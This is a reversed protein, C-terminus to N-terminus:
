EIYGPSLAYDRESDRPVLFEPHPVVVRVVAPDAGPTLDVSVPAVGFRRRVEHDLGPPPVATDPAGDADDPAELSGLHDLFDNQRRAMRRPLALEEPDSATNALAARVSVAECVAHLLAARDDDPRRACAGFTIQQKDTRVVAALVAAVPVDTLVRWARVRLRQTDLQRLLPAPLADAVRHDARVIRATGRWVSRVAHRELSELLATTRAARADPHAATGVSSQKWRLPRGDTWRLLSTRAPVAAPQERGTDDRQSGPLWWEEDTLDPHPAVLRVGRDLLEGRPRLLAPGREILAARELAESRARIGAREPDVDCAGGAVPADAGRGPSTSLFLTSSLIPWTKM